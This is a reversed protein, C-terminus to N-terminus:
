SQVVTAQFILALAIDKETTSELKEFLDEFSSVDKVRLIMQLQEKFDDKDSLQDLLLALQQWKGQTRIDSDVSSDSNNRLEAELQVSELLGEEAAQQFYEKQKAYQADLRGRVLIISLHTKARSISDIISSGDTVIVVREAEWGSFSHTNYCDWPGGAEKGQERVMNEISDPITPTYLITADDGLHKRAQDLAEKTRREDKGVDWFFPKIGEVDSGFDGDPVYMGNCKAMFRTLRTIAKTFRFPTTLTVHLFSPPLTLPNTSATPSRVAILRVTEPLSHNGLESLVQSQVIEDLLIVVPRGEFRRALAETLQILDMGRNYKNNSVGFEKLIDAWGKFVKNASAWTSDDLYTMVPDKEHQETTVVLIPEIGAEECTDTLSEMLNNAVQVAMLSKGTGAPGELVLHRKTSSATFSHIVQQQLPPAVVYEKKTMETDDVTKYRHREVVLKEMDKVKKYGIHVLSQHFHCRAILTLLYRKGSSTAPDPKSPVQTKKQLLSLDALDEHCIVNSELCDNCFITQLGSYSADPFYAQTHFIIHDPPIGALIAKLVDVNKSLKSEAQNVKQKTPISSGIQWPFTEVRKVECIVVHLFDGSVYAMVLGIEADGTLALGLDRLASNAKLSLSRIILAPIQLDTMMKELAKKLKIPAENDQRKQVTKFEPLKWALSFAAREASAESKGAAKANEKEENYKVLIQENLSMVTQDIPYSDIQHKRGKLDAFDVAGSRYPKTMRFEEAPISLVGGEEIVKWDSNTAYDEELEKLSIRVSVPGRKILVRLTEDLSMLPSRLLKNIKTERSCREGHGLCNGPFAM